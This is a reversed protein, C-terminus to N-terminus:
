GRLHRAPRSYNIHAPLLGPRRLMRATGANWRTLLLNGHDWSSSPMSVSSAPSLVKIQNATSAARSQLHQSRRLLPLSVQAPVTPPPPDDLVVPQLLRRPCTFFRNDVNVIYSPRDPRMSVIIGQQDWASTKSDQLYVLQGPSLLPLSLMSRDHDTKCCSHALDKSLAAQNFNIPTLQSPLSPLCTCQSHGFILQSPSYGDSM